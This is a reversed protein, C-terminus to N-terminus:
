KNQILEFARKLDRAVSEKFSKTDNKMVQIEDVLESIRQQLRKIQQNQEKLTMKEGQSNAM